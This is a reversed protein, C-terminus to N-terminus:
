DLFTKFDKKIKYTKGKYRLFSDKFFLVDKKGNDFIVIIKHDALFKLPIFRIDILYNNFFANIKNEDDIVNIKKFKSVSDKSREKVVLSRVSKKHSSLDIVEEKNSCSFFTIAAFFSVWVWRM